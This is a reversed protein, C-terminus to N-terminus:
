GTVPGILASEAFRDDLAAVWYQHEVVGNSAHDVMMTQDGAVQDYRDAISTGDRYIVYSQIPDGDPDPVSPVTWQLVTNGEADKSLILDVPPNPATNPENVNVRDSPDGEREQDQPDRDIAVVWYDLPSGTRVPPTADVCTSETTFECVVEAAGTGQRYVRYGIVDRERSASWQAEVVGDNRAAVMNIPAVPAFRNVVVTASRVEGGLGASDFAQASIDYVGDLPPLEWSFTWQSDAGAATDQQAGDLSWVVAAADESTTVAFSASSILPDTIPSAAPSTLRVSSVGPADIGGRASILTSQRSRGAGADNDWSTVVTVRKHDISNGDETGGTGSGACFSGPSRSGLGDAPEDLWCVRVQITFTTNDREIQWPHASVGALAEDQRLTSVMSGPAVDRYPVSKAAELVQRAVATANQRDAASRGRKNATDLMALTGLAGVLLVVVAVMAEVITFGREENLRRM